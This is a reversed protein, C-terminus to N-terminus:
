GMMGRDMPFMPRQIRQYPLNEIDQNVAGPSLALLARRAMQDVEPVLYGMKVVVIQYQTPDLDIQTFDTMRHFPTRRETLVVHVGLVDIVTVHNPLVTTGAKANAPWSVTHLSIVTGNVHLPQAHIPDLKGGLALPVTAGVGAQECAAVAQADAIGAVLASKAGLALLRELVYPIDGAGGATPNDGSDSIVVPKETEQLALQICEDATGSTVGFRFQARVAWFKQALDAAAARTQAEDWGVAVVSGTARPEDAWVYGILISADLLQYDNIVQPITAYLSAAPEFETSSQEGPVLIPVPIFAMSPASGARLCRMLLACAREQTEYWDLHPATRYATLMNLSEIVRQSVNGHLDYSASILCDPGVVERIAALLDGEVDDRGHVNAAGHMDLFIGDWSGHAALEDLLQKKFGAYFAPEISGGPLARARRLGIFAVDPYDAFFGYNALLEAGTSVIFDRAGSLLPSFTCCECSLGAVGIRREKASSTSPASERQLGNSPNM